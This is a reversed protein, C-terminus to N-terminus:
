KPFSGNEWPWGRARMLERLRTFYRQTVTDCPGFGCGQFGVEVVNNLRRSMSMALSSGMSGTYEVLRLTMHKSEGYVGSRFLGSIGWPHITVSHHNRWRDPRALSCCCGIRSRESRVSRIQTTRICRCSWSYCIICFEITGIDFWLAFCQSFIKSSFDANPGNIIKERM